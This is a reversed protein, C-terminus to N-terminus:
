WLILSNCAEPYGRLAVWPSGFIFLVTDAASLVGIVAEYWSEPDYFASFAVQFAQWGPLGAPLRVGYKIVSLFWALAHLLWAASVLFKPRRTATREWMFNCVVLAPQKGLVSSHKHITGSIENGSLLWPM